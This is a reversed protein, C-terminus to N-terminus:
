ETLPGKEFVKRPINRGFRLFSLEKIKKEKWLGEVTRREYIRMLVCCKRTTVGLLMKTALIVSVVKRSILNHFSSTLDFTNHTKREIVTPASVKVNRISALSDEEFGNSGFAGLDKRWSLWFQKRGALSLETLLCKMSYGNLFSLHWSVHGSDVCSLSLCLSAFDDLSSDLHFRIAGAKAHNRGVFVVALAHIM